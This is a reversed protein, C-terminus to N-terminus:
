FLFPLLRNRREDYKVDFEDVNAELAKVKIGHMRKQTYLLGVIGSNQYLQSLELM